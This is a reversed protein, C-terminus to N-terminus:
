AANEQELVAAAIAGEVDGYHSYHILASACAPGTATTVADKTPWCDPDFLPWMTSGEEIFEESPTIGLFNFANDQLEGWDLLSTQIVGRQGFEGLQMQCAAGAICCVTGCDDINGEDFDGREAAEKAAAILSYDGTDTDRTVSAYDINFAAHPAGNQLWEILDIANEPHDIHPGIMDVTYKM